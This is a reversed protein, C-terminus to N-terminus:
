KRKAISWLLEFVLRQTKAINADSILVGVFEKEFSLIAVNNGYVNTTTPFELSSPLFRMERLEKKNRKYLARSERSNETIVRTKIRSRVRRQVFNPFFSRLVRQQKSTAGYVLVSKKTRIIDDLITKIGTIGEYLQVNPKEVVSAYIEQMKPLIAALHAEKEQLVHILKEPHAAEFYQKKSRIVTSVIGKRVLAKLVDYTYTRYTEAKQAIVQVSATGLSLLSIYVRIEQNTLGFARLEREFM